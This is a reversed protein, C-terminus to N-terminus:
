TNSRRWSGGGDSLAARLRLRLTNSNNTYPPPGTTLLPISRKRVVRKASYTFEFRALRRNAHVLSRLRTRVAANVVFVPTERQALACPPGGLAPGTAQM